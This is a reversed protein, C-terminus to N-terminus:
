RIEGQNKIVLDILDGTANRDKSILVGNRDVNIEPRGLLERFLGATWSVKTPRPQEVVAVTADPVLAGMIRLQERARAAYESNPYDRAIRQFCKAAEDPEEEDLYTVGLDYLAKGIYRFDPYKQVLELLRYQAGKLGGGGQRYRNMYFEAIQLNHMALYDQVTHLDTSAQDKVATNPYQQLLVKL